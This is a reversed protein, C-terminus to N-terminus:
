EHEHESTIGVCQESRRRLEDRVLAGPTEPAATAGRQLHSRHVQGGINLNDWAQIGPASAVAAEAEARATESKDWERYAGEAFVLWAGALVIVVAWVAPLGFVHDLLWFLSGGVVFTVFGGLAGFRLVGQLAANKWFRFRRKM